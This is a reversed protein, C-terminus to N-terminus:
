QENRVRTIRTGWPDWFSSYREGGVYGEPLPAFAMVELEQGRPIVWLTCAQDRSSALAAALADPQVCRAAEPDCPRVRDPVVGRSMLRAHHARALRQEAGTPCTTAPGQPGGLELLLPLESPFRVEARACHQSDQDCAALLWPGQTPPRVEACRDHDADVRFRTIRGDWTLDHRQGPELHLTSPMPPECEPCRLEPDCECACFADPMHLGTELLTGSLDVMRLFALSGWTTDLDVPTDPPAVVSLTIPHVEVPPPPPTTPTTTCALLALLLM